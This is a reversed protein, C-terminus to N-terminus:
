MSRASCLVTLTQTDPCGISVDGDSVTLTVSLPGAAVCTVQAGQANPNSLTGGSTAWFYTLASPANDRDHALASLAITGGVFAEAPSAGISDIVPCANFAGQVSATGNRAIPLCGLHVVVSTTTRAAVDFTASGMCSTGGDTSTAHLTLLYGTGPRLPSLTTAITASSSVDITGTTTSTGADLLSPGTLQYDINNLDTGPAVTLSLSGKGPASASDSSSDACGSTTAISLSAMALLLFTSRARVRTWGFVLLLAALALAVWRPVPVAAPAIVAPATKCALHIAVPVTSASTVNFVASGECPLLKQELDQVTLRATYGTGFPISGVVASFTTSNAVPVNASRLVGNGRIEYTVAGIQYGGGLTLALSVSGVDGSTSSGSSVSDDAATSGDLPQQCAALALAAFVLTTTRRGAFALVRM